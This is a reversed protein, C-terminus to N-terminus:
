VKKCRCNKKHTAYARVMRGLEFARILGMMAHPTVYAEHKKVLKNFDAVFALENKDNKVNM